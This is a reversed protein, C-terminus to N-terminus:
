ALQCDVGGGKSREILGGTKPVRVHTGFVRGIESGTLPEVLYDVAGLQMSELYCAMDLFHAVVLVPLNRDIEQTRELVCRGEFNPTGQSVLVFDFIGEELCLLAEQYSGCAQIECGYGELIGCCHRLEAPDDHVVLVKVLRTVDLHGREGENGGGPRM